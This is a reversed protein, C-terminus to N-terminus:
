KLSCKYTRLHYISTYNGVPKTSKLVSGKDKVNQGDNVEKTESKPGKAEVVSEKANEITSEAKENVKPLDKNEEKNKEAKGNKGAEKGNSKTVRSNSMSSGKKGLDKSEYKPSKKSFGRRDEVAHAIFYGQHEGKGFSVIIDGVEYGPEPEPKEKTDGERSIPRQRHSSLSRGKPDGSHSRKAAETSVSRKKEEKAKSWKGKEGNLPVNKGPKSSYRDGKGIDGMMSTYSTGAEATKNREGTYRRTSEEKKENTLYGRDLRRDQPLYEKRERSRSIHTSQNSKGSDEKKSNERDSTEISKKRLDKTGGSIYKGATEGKTETKTFLKEQKSKSPIKPPKEEAERKNPSREDKKNSDVKETTEKKPDDKGEDEKSTKSGEGGEM